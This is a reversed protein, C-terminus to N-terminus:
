FLTPEQIEPLDEETLPPLSIEGVPIGLDNTDPLDIDIVEDPTAAPAAAPAEPTPEAAPLDMEEPLIAPEEPLDDEPKHLPEAFEM